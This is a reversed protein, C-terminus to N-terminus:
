HGVRVAEMIKSGYTEEGERRVFYVPREPYTINEGLLTPLFSRGDIINPVSAQAAELLTPFLYMTLQVQESTSNSKVKGAWVVAAPVKIGGEYMSGKADRTNGNTAGALIQGGNDSTFVILTNNHAGTKKM